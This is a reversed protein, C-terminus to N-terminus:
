KFHFTKLTKDLTASIGNVKIDSIQDSKYTGDIDIKASSVFSNDELNTFSIEDDSSQIVGTM